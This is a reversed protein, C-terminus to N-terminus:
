GIGTSSMPYVSSCCLKELCIQFGLHFTQRRDTWLEPKRVVDLQHSPAPRVGVPEEAPLEDGGHGHGADEDSGDDVHDDAPCAILYM